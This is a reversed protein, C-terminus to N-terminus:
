ESDQSANADSVSQSQMQKRKEILAALKDADMGPLPDPEPQQLNLYMQMEELNTERREYIKMLRLRLTRVLAYLCASMLLWLTLDMRMSQESRPFLRMLSKLQDNLEARRLFYIMAITCVTLLRLLSESPWM